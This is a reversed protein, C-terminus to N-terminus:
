GAEIRELGQLDCIAACAREASQTCLEEPQLEPPCLVFNFMYVSHRAFDQWAESEDPAAIGHSRLQGLYHALQAHQLERRQAVSQNIVMAYSVDWAWHGRMVTAWDLLGPDGGPDFFMNGIHPDGHVVCVPDAMDAALLALNARLLRDRDRLEEPVHAFRPLPSVQDWFGSFRELVGNSHIVGGPTLWELPDLQPDCWHAAHLAALQDLLQQMTHPSLSSVQQGFTVPRRNLDEYIVAGSSWGPAFATAYPQPLNVALGPALDRFFAAEISSHMAQEPIQTELGCKLWLSPPLCYARGAANYELFYELKTATGSIVTGARLGTVETGPYRESLCQGLWEASIAAISDPFPETV